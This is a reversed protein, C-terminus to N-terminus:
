AVSELNATLCKLIGNRAEEREEDTMTGMEPLKRGTRLSLVHSQGWWIAAMEARSIDRDEYAAESAELYAFGLAALRREGQREIAAWGLGVDGRANMGADSWGVLDLAGLDADGSTWLASERRELALGALGDAVKNAERPLWRVWDPHLIHEGRLLLTELVEEVEQM